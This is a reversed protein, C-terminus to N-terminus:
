KVTIEDATVWIYAIGISGDVSYITGRVTLPVNYPLNYLDERSLKPCDVYVCNWDNVRDTTAYCFLQQMGYDFIGDGQWYVTFEVDAGQCMDKCEVINRHTLMYQLSQLSQTDFQEYDKVVKAVQTPMNVKAINYLGCGQVTLSGMILLMIILLKKM